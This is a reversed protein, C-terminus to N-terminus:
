DAKQHRRCQSSERTCQQLSTTQAALTQRGGFFASKQRTLRSGCCSSPPTSAAGGRAWVDSKVGRLPSFVARRPPTKGGDPKWLVLVLHAVVPLDEGGAPSDFFPGSSFALEPPLLWGQTDTRSAYRSPAVIPPVIETPGSGDAAAESKVAGTAEAALAPDRGAQQRAASYASLPESRLRRAPAARHAQNTM